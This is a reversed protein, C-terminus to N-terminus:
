YKNKQIGDKTVLLNVVELRKGLPGLDNGNLYLKVGAGNGVRLLFKEKASWTISDGRDFIYEQAVSDDIAIQLWTKEEAVLNLMLKRTALRFSPFSALQSSQETVKADTKPNDITLNGNKNKIMLLLIILFIVIIGGIFIPRHQKLRKIINAPSLRQKENTTQSLKNKTLDDNTIAPKPTGMIQDFRNLLNGTNKGLQQLYAKLFYRVYTDPLFNFEGEEISKLFNINIKTQSAIDEIKIERKEREKKLDDGLQISEKNKM